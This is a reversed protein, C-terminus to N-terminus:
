PQVNLARNSFLDNAVVSDAVTASRTVYRHHHWDDITRATAAQSSEANRRETEIRVNEEKHEITLRTQRYRTAYAM